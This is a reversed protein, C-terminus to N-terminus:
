KGQNEPLTAIKQHIRDANVLANFSLQTVIVFIFLNM